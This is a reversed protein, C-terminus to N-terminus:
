PSAPALEIGLLRELEALTTANDRHLVGAMGVAEAGAVNERLDDVFVAEAPEIGLRKCALLYIEPQPKHLGVDGSIVTADFEGLPARDYIGTGWSNTILGTRLGAARATRVADVLPENPELGAFMRQILGDTREVGLLRGFREEFEGDGIAGTELRRLLALAEGRERFLARVAQPDLGEARCFAAFSDWISTTLVGGFDVLLARRAERNAAM